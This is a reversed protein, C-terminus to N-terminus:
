QKSGRGGAMTAAAKKMTVVRTSRGGNLSRAGRMTVGAKLHLHTLPLPPALYRSFALGLPFTALLVNVHYKAYTFAAELAQQDATLGVPRSSRLYQHQM